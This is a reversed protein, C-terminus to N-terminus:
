KRCDRWSNGCRKWKQVEFILSIKFAKTGPRTTAAATAHRQLGHRAAQARQATPAREAVAAGCLNSPLRLRSLALSCSRPAVLQLSATPLSGISCLACFRCLLDVESPILMSYVRRFFAAFVGFDKRHSM